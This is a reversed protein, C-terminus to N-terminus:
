GPGTFDIFVSRNEDRLEALRTQSFEQWDLKYQSPGLFSFAAFAGFGIIGLGWGWGKLQEKFTASISIRGIWWCGFAIVLLLTLVAVLYESRPEESFGALLFVVTAMLVFGTVEKFTGMWKGPKPLWSILKPFIGILLYPIAMGLGIAGFIAYTVWAPQGATIALAPVLMPGTCPTALITTLIGLFFAGSLGEEEAKKGVVNGGSIGPIPIEWVGLMSLGFAFVVATIVISGWMSKTLLDGWGYGFFASLTALILFVSILGASFALNLMFVKGRNEGAQSEFSMIKLGIVPLVCPMANLILGAALAMLLYGILNMFSIAVAPEAIQTNWFSASLSSVNNIEEETRVPEGAVFRLAVPEGTAETDVKIPINFDVFTPRDCNQSCVQYLLKGSINFEGPVIEKEPTLTITWTVSDEHYMQLEGVVTHEEADKSAVPESVNWGTTKQFFLLTPTSTTEPRKSREFAYIHWDPEMTATIEITASQGAKVIPNLLRGKITAHGNEIRFEEQGILNDPTTLESLNAVITSLAEDFQICKDSCVQGDVCFEIGLKEVDVGSNIEIPASWVVTGIFEEKEQGLKDFESEPAVDPVFPGVVKYDASETVQITTPTQGDLKRQSYGHWGDAIELRVNLQGARKSNTDSAEDASFDGSFTYPGDDQLMEEFALLDDIEQALGTSLQATLSGVLCFLLATFKIFSHNTLKTNM